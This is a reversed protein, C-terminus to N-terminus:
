CFDGRKDDCDRHETRNCSDMESEAEKQIPKSALFTVPNLIMQQRNCQRQHNHNLPAPANESSRTTESCRSVTKCVADPLRRDDGDHVKGSSGFGKFWIVRSARRFIFFTNELM